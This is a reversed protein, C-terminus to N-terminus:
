VGAAAYSVAPGTYSSGGTYTRASEDKKRDDPLFFVPWDQPNVSLCFESENHSYKRQEILRRRVLCGINERMQKWGKDGALRKADLNTFRGNGFYGYLQSMTKGLFGPYDTDVPGQIREPLITFVKYDTRGPRKKVALGYEMARAVDGSVNHLELQLERSWETRTFEAEGKTLKMHIFTAIRQESAGPEQQLMREMEKIM